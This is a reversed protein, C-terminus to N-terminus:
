VSTHARRRRCVFVLAGLTALGLASRRLTKGREAAVEDSRFGLMEGLYAFLELLTIGPDSRSHDTWDNAANM